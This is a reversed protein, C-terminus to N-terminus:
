FTSVEFVYATMESRSIIAIVIHLLVLSVPLSQEELCLWLNPFCTLLECTNLFAFTKCLEVQKFDKHAYHHGDLAQIQSMQGKCTLHEILVFDVTLSHSM